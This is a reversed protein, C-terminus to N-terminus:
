VTYCVFSYIYYRVEEGSDFECYGYGRSKGTERETMLRASSVRVVGKVVGGDSIVELRRKNLLIEIEDFLDHNNRIDFHLNGIFATYPPSNPIEYQKPPPPAYDEEDDDNSEDDQQQFYASSGPLNSPPPAIRDDESEEDSSADAWSKINSM